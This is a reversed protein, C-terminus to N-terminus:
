PRVELADFASEFINAMDHLCRARWEERTMRIVPMIEYSVLHASENASISSPASPTSPALSM